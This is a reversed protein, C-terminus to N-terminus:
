IHIQENQIKNYIYIYIESIKLLLKNGNSITLLLRQLLIKTKAVVFFVAINEIKHNCAIKRRENKKKGFWENWTKIKSEIVIKEYTPPFVSSFIRLFYSYYLLNGFSKKFM